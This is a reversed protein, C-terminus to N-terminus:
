VLGSKCDPAKLWEAVGGDNNSILVSLISSIDMSIKADDNLMHNLRLIGMDAGM